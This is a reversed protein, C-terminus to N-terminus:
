KLELAPADFRAVEAPLWEPLDADPGGEHVSSIIRAALKGGKASLVLTCEDDDLSESASRYVGAAGAADIEDRELVHYDDPECREFAVRPQAVLLSLALAIM